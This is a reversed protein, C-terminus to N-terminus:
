LAFIIWKLINGPKAKNQDPSLHLQLILLSKKKWKLSTNIWVNRKTRGLACLTKVGEYYSFMFWRKCYNRNRYYAIFYWNLWLHHTSTLMSNQRILQTPWLPLVYLAVNLDDLTPYTGIMDTPVHIMVPSYLSLLSLVIFSIGSWFHWTMYLRLNHHRGNGRDARCPGRRGHPHSRGQGEEPGRAGRQLLSNDESLGPQHPLPGDGPTWLYSYLHVSELYWSQEVLM